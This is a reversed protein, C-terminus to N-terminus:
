VQGELDFTQIESPHARSIDYKEQGLQPQSSQTVDLCSSESRCERERMLEYRARALGDRMAREELSGM